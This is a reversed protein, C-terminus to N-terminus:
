CSIRPYSVKLLHDWFYTSRLADFSWLRWFVININSYLFWLCSFVINTYFDHVHSCLIFTYFDHIHSCLILTYFDYVHSCLISTNFDYVHSCLIPISIMSMLVRYQYPFWSCSIVINTHFDHVHSCLIPISIM